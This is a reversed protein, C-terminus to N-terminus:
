ESCACCRNKGCFIFARFISGKYFEEKVKYISDFYKFKWQGSLLMFRDSDERDEVLNDMRESAPIYYARNPMTNKHLVSLDEYYKPVIM